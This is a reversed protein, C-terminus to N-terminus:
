AWTIASCTSCATWASPIPSPRRTSFILDFERGRAAQEELWQLCDARIYSMTRREFGNLLLNQAGVGFLYEVSRRERHPARRGRSCLGNREGTYCFLNLFDADKAFRRLLGRMIRHDLFLGTDLYDRFNVWFKLGGEAVVSARRHGGAERVARQGEAAQAGPLPDRRDAPRPSGACRWGRPATRARKGRCPKPRRTSRCTPTARSAATCTSPLHTNRCTRTTSAFASSTNPSRGPMSASYIRECDIRSCRHARGPRGTRM